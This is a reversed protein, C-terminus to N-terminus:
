QATPYAIGNSGTTIGVGGGIAVLTESKVRFNGHMDTYTTVGVWGSGSTRYKTSVGDYTISTNTSIGYVRKDYGDNVAAESFSSDGVTSIPLQSVYFSTGGVTPVGNALGDTSGITLSTNSAISNIVADGYYSGGAGIYGIRLIDGVQAYGADGFKTSTGTITFSGDANPTYNIKVTGAAQHTVNDSKGWLSM